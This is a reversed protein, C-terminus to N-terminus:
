AREVKNKEIIKQKPNVFFHLNQAHKITNISIKELKSVKNLYIKFVLRIKLMFIYVLNQSPLISNIVM